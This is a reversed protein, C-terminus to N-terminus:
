YVDARSFARNEGRDAPTETPDTEAGGIGQLGGEVDVISALPNFFRDYLGKEIQGLMEEFTKMRQAASAFETSQSNSASELVTMLKSAAYDECMLELWKIQDDTLEDAASLADTDIGRSLLISKIRVTAQDIWSSIESDSVSGNANRRFPPCGSCVQDVTCYSM